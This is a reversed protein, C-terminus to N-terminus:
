VVLFLIRSLLCLPLTLVNNLHVGLLEDVSYGFLSQVSPSLYKFQLTELDLVWVVDAIREALLRYQKESEKLRQEAAKRDTVDILSGEYYLPTGKVDHVARVYDEAWFKTGDQRIFESRYRNM